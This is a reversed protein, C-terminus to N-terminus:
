RGHTHFCANCYGDKRFLSQQFDDCDCVACKQSLTFSGFSAADGIDLDGEDFPSRSDSGIKGHGQSFQTDAATPTLFPSGTLVNGSSSSAKQVSTSNSRRSSPPPPPPAKKASFSRKLQQVMTMGADEKTSSEGKKEFLIRRDDDAGPSHEAQRYDPSQAINHDGFPEDKWEPSINQSIHASNRRASLLTLTQQAPTSPQSQGRKALTSPRAPLPPKKPAEETYNVPFLGRVGKSEGMWWTESPESLVTIEDGVEMTLEDEGGTFAYLARMVKLANPKEPPLSRPPLKPSSHKSSQAESLTSQARSRPAPPAGRGSRTRTLAFVTPSDPTNAQSSEELRKPDSDRLEEFNGSKEKRLMSGVANSAWNSVSKRGQSATTAVSTSRKHIEPRQRSESEDSSELKEEEPQNASPTSQLVHTPGKPRMSIRYVDQDKPWDDKAERLTNVWSEAFKLELDLFRTLDKLQDMEGDQIQVIQSQVEESMEEFRARARTVEEEAEVKEKERKFQRQSQSVAADYALRRSKLKKRLLHYQAVEAISAEVRTLFLSHLTEAFQEQLSAVKIHAKGLTCLSTGYASDDGFEEGHSVMVRGLTEMPLYKQDGEGTDKKKLLYTYYSRASEHIQEMGIRRREIEQELDKFEGTAITKKELTMKEGAWQKSPM